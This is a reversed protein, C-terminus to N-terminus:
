PQSSSSERSSIPANNRLSVVSIIAYRSPLQYLLQRFLGSRVYRSTPPSSSSIPIPEYTADDCGHHQDMLSTCTPSISQPYVLAHFDGYNHSSPGAASMSNADYDMNHDFCLLRRRSTFRQSLTNPHLPIPSSLFVRLEYCLALWVKTSFPHIHGFCPSASNRKFIKLSSGIMINTDFLALPVQLV